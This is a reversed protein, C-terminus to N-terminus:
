GPFYVSADNGGTCAVESGDPSCTMSYTDGTVPSYVDYSGLGDDDYTSEVNQAFDCTTDPGVYLGGGCSTKNSTESAVNPTGSRRTKTKRKAASPVQIVVSASVPTANADSGIVDITSKGPSLKVNAAFVGNGVAAAQGDVQVSANTPTVTGRITVNNARIVTGNAPATIVLRVSKAAEITTTTTTTSAGCAAIGSAAAIVSMFGVLGKISL